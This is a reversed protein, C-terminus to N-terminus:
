PLSAYQGTTYGKLSVRFIENGQFPQAECGPQFPQGVVGVRDVKRVPQDIFTDYTKNTTHDEIWMHEPCVQGERFGGCLFVNNNMAQTRTESIGKINEMTAQRIQDLTQGQLSAGYNYQAGIKDMLSTYTKNVAEGVGSSTNGSLAWTHCAMEQTNM